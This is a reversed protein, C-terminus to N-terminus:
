DNSHLYWSSANQSCLVVYSIARCYLCYLYIVFGITWRLSMRSAWLSMRIDIQKYIYLYHIVDSSYNNYVFLSVCQCTAKWSQHTMYLKSILKSYACIINKQKQKKLNSARTYCWDKGDAMFDAM